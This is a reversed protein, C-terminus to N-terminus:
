HGVRDGGGKGFATAVLINFDLSFSRSEYYRRDWEALRVPDSMDIDNIQALGTIGPKMDFVSRARREEILRTQSPLCPRPGVLSMQNALVNFMQPLEDLKTRRLLAGARTIATRSIEHTGAEPTSLFMTRFKLCLFDRGDRGIRQQRYLAPGPSDLRIVLWVLMFLWFFLIIFMLAVALDLIRKTALYVSKDPLLSVKGASIFM